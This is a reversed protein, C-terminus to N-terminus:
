KVSVTSKEGLLESIYSIIEPADDFERRSIGSEVFATDILVEKWFLEKENDSVKDSFHAEIGYEGRTLKAGHSAGLELIKGCGTKIREMEQRLYKKYEQRSLLESHKSLVFYKIKNSFIPHWEIDKKLEAIKEEVKTFSFRNEKDKLHIESELIVGDKVDYECKEGPHECHQETLKQDINTGNIRYQYTSYFQSDYDPPHGYFKLKMESPLIEVERYWGESEELVLTDDAESLGYFKMIELRLEEMTEQPLEAASIKFQIEKIKEPIPIKNIMSSFWHWVVIGVYIWSLIPSFIFRDLVMFVFLFKNIKTETESYRGTAVNYFIGIKKLNKTRVSYLLSISTFFVIISIILACFFGLLYFEWLM